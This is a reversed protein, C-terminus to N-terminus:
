WKKMKSWIKRIFKIKHTKFIATLLYVKSTQIMLPHLKVWELIWSWWFITIKSQSWSRYSDFVTKM